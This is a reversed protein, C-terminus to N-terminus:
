VIRRIAALQEVELRVVDLMESWTWDMDGTLDLGLAEGLQTRYTEPNKASDEAVYTCHCVDCEVFTLTNDVNRGDSRLVGTCDGVCPCRVPLGQDFPTAYHEAQGAPDTHKLCPM